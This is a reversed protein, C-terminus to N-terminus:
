MTKKLIEVVDGEVVKKPNAKLSGSPMSDRAIAPFDKEKVGLERLGQPFNLNALFDKIRSIAEKAADTGKTGSINSGLLPVIEAYKDAVVDLNFEMAYPLLLGCLLGHAIGYRAGLPHAIGHVVGMRANFLAIGGLLSGYSMDIRAPLDKGKRYAKLLSRGILKIAERCLSDTLPNSGLSVFTEIAQCLADMGSYATIHPPSFITLEPDIIAVKASLLPDRFSKKLCEKKNILVANPTVEAGTGSTTPIAIFPLGPSDLRKGAQFEEVEEEKNAIGAIAKAADLVSGGGLGIVMACKEKKALEVAINVTETCPEPEVQDFLTVTKGADNLMKVVKDLIGLRRMAARGTVLLLRKGLSSAEQTLSQLSGCGMVLKTSLSFNYTREAGNM